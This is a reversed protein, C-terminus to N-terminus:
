STKAKLSSQWGSKIEFLVISPDTGGAVQKDEIHYKNQDIVQRNKCHPRSYWTPQKLSDPLSSTLQGLM